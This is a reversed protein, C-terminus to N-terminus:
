YMSIQTNKYIIIFNLYSNLLFLNYKFFNFIPVKEAAFFYFFGLLVIPDIIRKGKEAKAM